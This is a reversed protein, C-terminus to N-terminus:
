GIAPEPLGRVIKMTELSVTIVRQFLELPYAPNHMTEIAYRNPDNTIGSKKDTKVQQREMVWELAPKGNVVYTYADLPIGQLTINQNYIVRSKDWAGRKGAFKMKQVRYFARPDDILATRLDGQQIPTPYPEVAEYNVHLDGLQRGAQSFAWFQAAPLRPIRPLEKSLNNAYRQRYAASHLLGYIYYFLDEKTIPRNPHGQQFHALAADTIGDRRSYETPSTPLLGRGASSDYLYLPFTQGTAVMSYAPMDKTMLCSFTSASVGSVSISLNGRHRPPYLKPLQYVRENLKRSFYLWQRTFPLYSCTEMSGEALALDKGKTLASKLNGSWSIQTAEPTIFGDIFAEREKANAFRPAERLYRQRENNFTQITKEVSRTLTDKSSNVCWADRSTLVGQSYNSFISWERQDGKNGLPPFQSFSDDRQDLWDGHADPTIRQWKDAKTIGVVSAFSNIIRLKLDRDLYDGIDHFYINGHTAAQPNKVLISIAVPTRTGQGFVNDKEKRRIEGSTRANGRLHFIYLDSFEAALTQRLGDDSRGEIWSANTVYAVVGSSEIRDSAWRMARKYSDYNSRVLKAKSRAVFTERIKRDLDPYEVNAANDNESRQGASYPPNGLIVTIPAAKQRQRRAENARLRQFQLGEREHMQFTDALCIGAFPLYDAGQGRAGQYAIEINIAAIYYALLLIENAHIEHRFKHELEEPAILGSQLLRSIFTGTGTFPDLIAVGPAGLTKGFQQQLVENVSHLIFDVIEVPTYVIGLKEVVRPFAASFFKNYLEVILAQRARPDTLGQTKEEVRQYFGQLGQAEKGLNASDLEELVHQLARSVPNQATFEHNEFLAAFVPRTIIHQALMEIADQETISHNLTDRLEGLFATFARRAATDPPSTGASGDGQLIGQLRSIHNKAIKAVDAAWDGWYERTGCKKVIKARIARAYEPFVLELQEAQRTKQEEPASGIDAREPAARSPLHDVVIELRGSVDQGLAMQNVTTDFREDHSRLANLIQWIVRYRENDNLAQEPAINPPVGVPLIVYGLDKGEAQRMVRGVSQVVEIQSKRPHLFMIGDLAPVDVGESLCRVNTLIRCTNQHTGDPATEPATESADARLWDLREARERARHTGDVHRIECHLPTPEQEGEQTDQEQQTEQAPQPLEELPTNELYEDIVQTFEQEILKSSSISRCFALARRMPRSDAPTEGQLGQKALAKYCGIIKTADDLALESQGALRSQVRASIAREDVTLVIVKYDSLLQQRVAEAFGLHYLTEGFTESDDMSALVARTEDARTKASDGFIRPTATMYLRKRGRIVQPDHVKVFNSETEGEMTAGTTRHAEDCIILDFAPFGHHAQAEAIVQISQYTAFVVKMQEPSAGAGRAALKRADTNAPIVLDHVEIEAMDDTNARRKGVQSDSCVAFSRLALTSDAAWERVTQSMLALSPMLVLVVGGRGALEEAIKLSTLTKGTGCAMIMKGRDATRLGQRVARIADNQHPRLVKKTLVIEDRARYIAWDIPSQEFADLGIRFVPIAQNRLMMEANESWAHETTDIIVRRKFPEKGSASIFSDIDEKRIRRAFDHFKCQIAAFGDETKLKAVLDIGTDRGDWGHANAWHAYPMVQEYEGAKTPDRTLFRKCLDEFYRGQARQTHAAQRYSDLLERFPTHRM